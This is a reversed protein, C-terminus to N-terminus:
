FNLQVQLSIEIIALKFPIQIENYATIVIPFLFFASFFNSSQTATVQSIHEHTIQIKWIYCVKKWVKFEM